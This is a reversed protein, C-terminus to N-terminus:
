NRRRKKRVRRKPPTEKLFAAIRQQSNQRLNMYFLNYDYTHYNKGPFVALGYGSAEPENIWLVGDRCTAGILHRDLPRLGTLGVLPLSGLNAERGVAADDISWSLPNTCVPTEGWPPDDHLRPEGGEGFTRWSIICGTDEHTRCLPITSDEAAHPGDWVTSGILYAAILKEQVPRGAIWEDLLRKALHSGQSHGAIIFPRGNSRSFLYNVFAKSIDEFAIELGRQREASNEEGTLILQRYRPAFVRAAGNFVSAQQPLTANDTVFNALRDDISANWTDGFFYTTPHLFFVDASSRDQRDVTGSGPPLEDAGDRRNPLAAWSADSQYDPPPPVASSDWGGSPGGMRLLDPGSSVIWIGIGGVLLVVVAGIILAVRTM